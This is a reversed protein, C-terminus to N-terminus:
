MLSSDTDLALSSSSNSSSVDGMLASATTSEDPFAEAVGYNVEWGLDELSAITVESLPMTSGSAEVEHSMLENNFIEEQWHAIDSGEGVGSTLPIAKGM